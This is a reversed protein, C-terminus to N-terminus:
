DAVTVMSYEIDPTPAVAAAGADGYTRTSREILLVVVAVRDRLRGPANAAPRALRETGLRGDSQSSELLLGCGSRSSIVRPSPDRMAARAVLRPARRHAGRCAAPPVSGRNAHYPSRGGFPWRHALCGIGRTRINHPADLRPFHATEASAGHQLTVSFGPSYPIGSLMGLSPRHRSGRCRGRPQKRDLEGSADRCPRPLCTGRGTLRLHKM